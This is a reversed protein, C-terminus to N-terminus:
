KQMHLETKTIAELRVYAVLLYCRRLGVLQVNRLPYDNNRSPWCAPYHSQEVQVNNNQQM